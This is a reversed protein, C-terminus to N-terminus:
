EGLVSGANTDFGEMMKTIDANAIRELESNLDAVVPGM